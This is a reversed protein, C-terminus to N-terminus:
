HTPKASAPIAAGGIQLTPVKTIEAPGAKIEDTPESIAQPTESSIAQPTDTAVPAVPETATPAAETPENKPTDTQPAEPTVTPTATLEETPAPTPPETTPSAAAQPEEENPAQIQPLEGVPVSLAVFSSGVWGRGTKKNRPFEIELWGATNDRGLAKISDGRHVAGLQQYGLGPGARVVLAAATVTGSKASNDANAARAAAIVPTNGAESAGGACNACTETESPAASKPSPLETTPAPQQSKSEQQLQVVTAAATPPERPPPNLTPASVERPAATPISSAISTDVAAKTEVPTTAQFALVISPQPAAAPAAVQRQSNSQMVLNAALLIVFAGAAVAAAGRLGWVLWAPTSTPAPENVPLTFARPLKPVPVQKLLGMTWVMSHLSTQCRDCTKLHESVRAYEDAPLQQDIFASLRAEVYEHLNTESNTRKFM